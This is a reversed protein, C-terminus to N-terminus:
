VMVRMWTSVTMVHVTHVRGLNDDVNDGGLVECGVYDSATCSVIYVHIM